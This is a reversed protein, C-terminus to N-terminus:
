SFLTLTPSPLPLLPALDATYANQPYPLAFNNVSKIWSQLEMPSDPRPLSFRKGRRGPNGLCSARPWKGLPTGFRFEPTDCM